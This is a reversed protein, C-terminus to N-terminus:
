VYEGGLYLGAEFARRQILGPSNSTFAGKIKQAIEQDPRDADISKKLDSSAFTTRGVNYVISVLSDFQKQDLPRKINYRIYDQAISMDEKLLSSAIASDVKTYKKAGAVMRHGYGISYVGSGPPDEYPTENYGEISMISKILAASSQMGINSGKILNSIDPLLLKYGIQIKSASTINNFKLIADSIRDIAGSASAKAADNGFYKEIIISHITDGSKIIHFFNWPLALKMISTQRKKSESMLASPSVADVIVMKGSSDIGVNGPRFDDMRFGAISCKKYFNYLIPDQMFLKFIEDVSVGTLESLEVVKSAEYDRYAPDNGAFLGMLVNAFRGDWFSRSYQDVNNNPDGIKDLLDLYAKYAIKLHQKFAFDFDIIDVRDQVIWNFNGEFEGKGHLYIKPFIGQLKQQNQFELENVKCGESDIAFKVILRDGSDLLAYVNRYAGSGLYRVGDQSELSGKKHLKRHLFYFKNYLSGFYEQKLKNTQQGKSDQGLEREWNIDSDEIIDDQESIIPASIKSLLISM